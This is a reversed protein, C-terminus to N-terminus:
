CHISIKWIMMSVDWLVENVMMVEGIPCIKHNWDGDIQLTIKCLNQENKLTVISKQFLFFTSFLKKQFVKSNILLPYFEEFQEHFCGPISWPVDNSGLDSLNQSKSKLRSGRTLVIQKKPNWIKSKALIFQWKPLIEILQLKTLKSGINVILYDFIIEMNQLNSQRAGYPRARPQARAFRVGTLYMNSFNEFFWLKYEVTKPGCRTKFYAWVRHNLHKQIVVTSEEM